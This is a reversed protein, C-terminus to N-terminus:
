IYPIKGTFQKARRRPNPVLFESNDLYKATEAPKRSVAKVARKAQYDERDENKAEPDHLPCSWIADNALSVFFKFANGASMM